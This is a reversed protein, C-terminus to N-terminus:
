PEQDADPDDNFDQTIKKLSIPSGITQEQLLLRHAALDMEERTMELAEQMENSTYRVFEPDNSYKGLGQENLIQLIASLPCCYTLEVEHIVKMQNNVRIVLCDASGIVEPLSLTKNSDPALSDM